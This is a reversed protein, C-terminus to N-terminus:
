LYKNKCFNMNRVKKTIEEYMLISSKLEESSMFDSEYVYNTNLYMHDNDEAVGFDVNKRKINLVNIKEDM